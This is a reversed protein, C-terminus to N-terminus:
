KLFYRVPIKMDIESPPKPFYSSADKITEITHEDLFNTGCSQVIKISSITGDKFLTFKAIVEGQIRLRKARLPYSKYQFIIRYVKTLFSQIEFDSLAEEKLVEKVQLDVKNQTQIEKKIPTNVVAKKQVEVKKEIIEEVIEKPKEKPIKKKIPVKKIKPKHKLSKKTIKKKKVKSKIIPKPKKAIPKEVVTKKIAPKLVPKPKEISFTSLHFVIAQPKKTHKADPKFYDSFGYICVALTLHLFISIFLSSSLRM